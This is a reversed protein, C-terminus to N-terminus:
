GQSRQSFLTKSGILRRVIKKSLRLIDASAALPLGVLPIWGLGAARLLLAGSIRPRMWSCDEELEAKFRCAELTYPSLDLYMQEFYLRLNNKGPPPTNHWPKSVQSHLFAPPEHVMHMVREKVTYGCPGFYQIIERGRQLFHLPVEAFESSALLATLVDQDGYMHTPRESWLMEQASRYISSELLQRWRELLPRHLNTVRVVCSNAAHKLVRGVPFGWARARMADPDEPYAGYLAEETAVLTDASLDQFYRRFDRAIIIDSDIWVVDDYGSDLVALLALPKVNFGRADVFPEVNLHVHPCRKLWDRFVTDAPPYFLEIRVGPCYHAISLVLLKVPTECSKRDESICIVM